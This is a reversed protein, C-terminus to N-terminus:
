ITVEEKRPSFLESDLSDAVQNCARYFDMAKRRDAVKHAEFRDSWKDLKVITLAGRVRMRCMGELAWAYAALQAAYFPDISNSTKYDVIELEGTDKNWVVLDLTGAISLKYETHGVLVECAVPVIEPRSQLYAVGSRVAAVARPDIDGNALDIAPHEGTAMWAEVYQELLGHAQSGVDGSDDRSNIHAMIAASRVEPALVAEAAGFVQKEISEVALQAAWKMLHPSGKMVNRSTVSKVLKDKGKGSARGKKIIRYFHGEDTHEPLVRGKALAIARRAEEVSVPDRKPM